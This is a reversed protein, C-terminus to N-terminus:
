NNSSTVNVSVTAPGFEASGIHLLEFSFSADGAETATLTFLFPEESSEQFVSISGSGDTTTFRLSHETKDPTFIDQEEDLFAIRLNASQNAEINIVAESDDSLIKTVIANDGEFVAFGIPEHEEEQSSTSNSCATLLGAFLLLVFVTKVKSLLFEKNM